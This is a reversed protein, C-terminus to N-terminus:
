LRYRETLGLLTRSLTTLDGAAQDLQRTSSATQQSAQRINQLAITVQEMGIQQQNTSAVIQQFTQVSDQIRAGLEEIAAQGADTRAKGSAARKVAEETLMVSANIGRQIEGLITRVNRTADKAQDALTKMESAVVAFSRGSEGAAAAEISANLALLHSRESVDNVTVIIDGIAQTKESLLVINSAVAEAQERIEDMARVTDEVAATGTDSTQVTAQAAAIVEQARRSIQTGSHVIEDVTAATEQVAALQEEVSAAQQQTSARIETAAANLNETAERSQRAIAQLGTVMANLTRGLRGFEHPGTAATQGSLDGEGVRAVFGMFEDLPQVISRRIGWAIAISALIAVLLGGIISMRSTDYTDKAVGRGVLITEALVARMAALSRTMALQERAIATERALVMARDGRRVAALQADGADRLRVSHAQTEDALRALQGWQAQRATSIATTQYTGVLGRLRGIAADMAATQGAIGGDGAADAGGDLAFQLVAQSRLESTAAEAASVADLQTLAVLDREVIRDVTARVEAVQGLAYLGLAILLATIAAFGFIIRNSVSM